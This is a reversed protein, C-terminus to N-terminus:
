LEATTPAATAPAILQVALRRQAYAMPEMVPAIQWVNGVDSRLRLEKRSWEVLLMRSVPKDAERVITETLRQDWGVSRSFPVGPWLSRLLFELEEPAAVADTILSIRDVATVQLLKARLTGYRSRAIQPLSLGIAHFVLPGLLTALAAVQMWKRIGAETWALSARRLGIAMPASAYILVVFTVAVIVGILLTGTLAWVVAGVTVTLAGVFARNSVSRRLVADLGQAALIVTPVLLFAEWPRTAAPWLAPAFVPTLRMVLGVATWCVMWRSLSQHIAPDTNKRPRLARQLGIVWWGALFASRTLWPEIDRLLRRTSVPWNAPLQDRPPALRLWSDLFEVGGDTLSMALWWLSLTGGTIVALVIARGLQLTDSPGVGSLSRGGEWLWLLALVAITALAVPGGSLLTLGWALGACLLRMSVFTPDGRWHGWVGWGVCMLLAMTLGDPRGSGAMLVFQPHLGWLVAGLVAVREGLAERLWAYLLLLSLGCAIASVIVTSAIAGPRGARIAMATLWAQLPPQASLSSDGFAVGPVMWDQIAAAQAVALSRVAWAATDPDFSARTVMVMPPVFALLWVIPAFAWARALAPAADRPPEAVMRLLQADDVILPM